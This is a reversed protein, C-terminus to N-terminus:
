EFLTIGPAAADAALLRSFYGLSDTLGGARARALWLRRHERAIAALSDRADRLLPLDGARRALGRRAAAAAYAATHALEDNILSCAASPRSSALSDLRAHTDAWDRAAGVHTQEDTRKFLDIFLATQNLLRTRSPHSLAGCTERLPLDADGIDDLWQSLAGTPDGFLHLSAAASDRPSAPNWAAQAADALAHM